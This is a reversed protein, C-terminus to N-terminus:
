KEESPQYPIDAEMHAAEALGCACLGWPEKFDRPVYKHDTVIPRHTNEPEM